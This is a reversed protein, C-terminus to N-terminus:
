RKKLSETFLREQEKYYDESVIYPMITGTKLYSSGFVIDSYYFYFLSDYDKEAKLFKKTDPNTTYGVMMMFKNKIDECLEEYLQLNISNEDIDDVLNKFFYRFSDLCIEEPCEQNRLHILPIKQIKKFKLIIYGGVPEIYPKM